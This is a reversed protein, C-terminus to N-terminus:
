GGAGRASRAGRDCICSTNWSGSRTREIELADLIDVGDEAIRAITCDSDPVASRGHGRRDFRIVRFRQSFVTMQPVWM